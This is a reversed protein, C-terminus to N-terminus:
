RGCRVMAAQEALVSASAVRREDGSSGLGGVQRGGYLIGVLFRRM